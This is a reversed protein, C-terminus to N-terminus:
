PVRVSVSFSGLNDYLFVAPDVGSDYLAPDCERRQLYVDNVALYLHGRGPPADPTYERGVVQVATSDQTALEWVEDPELTDDTSIALILAGYPAGQVMLCRERGPRGRDRRPLEEGEPGVWGYRPVTDLRSAHVLADLSIHVAGSATVIPTEEGDLWVGTKQWHDQPRVVVHAIQYEETSFPDRGTVIWGISSSKVREDSGLAFSLFLPAGVGAVGLVLATLGPHFGRNRILYWTGTAVAVAILVSEVLQRPPMLDM